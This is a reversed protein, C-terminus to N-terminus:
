SIPTWVSIHKCHLRSIEFRWVWSFSNCCTHFELPNETESIEVGSVIELKVVQTMDDIAGCTDTDYLIDLLLRLSVKISVPVVYHRQCVMGTQVKYRCALHGTFFEILLTSFYILLCDIAFEDINEQPISLGTQLLSCWYEAQM